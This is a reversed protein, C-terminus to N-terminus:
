RVLDGQLRCAEAMNFGGGYDLACHGGIAADDLGTAARPVLLDQDVARGSRDASGADLQGAMEAQADGGGAPRDIAVVHAREARIMDDGEISGIERFGDAILIDDDIQD